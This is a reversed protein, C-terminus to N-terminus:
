KATAEGRAGAFLGKWLIVLKRIRVDINDHSTGMVVVISKHLCSVLSFFLVYARYPFASQHFFWIRNRTYYYLYAESYSKGRKGGGSKHFVVSRSTYSMKYYKMIRLSYELDEFYLFFREDMFGVREVVERKLLMLMGPVFDIESQELRGSDLEGIRLNVGTCLTKSFRGGAANIVSPSDRYLVKGTVAGCRDDSQLIDLLPQLFGPQVVIDNNVILLFSFGDALAARLGYNNGAAYGLNRVCRHFRVGSFASRLAEGSHDPSGNDVLYIARQSFGAAILSDICEKTDDFANYHLVIAAVDHNM